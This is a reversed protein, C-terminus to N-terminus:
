SILPRQQSLARRAKARRSLRVTATDIGRNLEDVMQAAKRYALHEGYAQAPHAEGGAPKLLGELYQWYAERAEAMLKVALGRMREREAEMGAKIAEEDEIERKVEDGTM